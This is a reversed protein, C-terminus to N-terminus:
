RGGLDDGGSDGVIRGATVPAGGTLRNALDEFDDFMLDPGAARLAEPRTFGWGVAGFALGAERSSDLDRLEDGIKIAEGPRVGATKCVARLKAAKGFLSAGCAWVGIRGALEPGLVRRINEEANSSVLALKVGADSLRGLAQAAGPFLHFAACDRGAAARLDRAILPLKWSPVRQRKLLERASLGRLADLDSRDLRLFRHRDATQDAVSLFWEFTDALTGDFDFIALRYPPASGQGSM